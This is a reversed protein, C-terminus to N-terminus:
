PQTPVQPQPAQPQPAQPQPAQPQPAQPQPAQPQPAQPQPAGGPPAGQPAGQQPAGQPSGGPTAGDTGTSEKPANDCEAIEYGDACETKKRYRERFDKVFEEMIKQERESRIAARIAEESQKLSQQTAKSVDDVKFVYYGFQTRVPGQLQGPQASFVAKDLAKDQQGEAVNELRGARKKTADDTSLASAVTKFSEGGALRSKAQNAKAKSKTLVVSIDRQEPKGFRGKNKAYYQRVDADTIRAAKRTVKAQLKQQLLSGRLRYKIAAEDLGSSKLFKRYEREGNKGPFSRKKEEELTNDLEKASVKVNQAEAEQEVWKSTILFQMVEDRIRDYNQECVKKLDADSQKPAGQPQPQKKLSAICKKHEPPDPVAGEGGQAQGKAVSNLWRDFEKKTITDDGVKAVSNSPVDNGCGAIIATPLLLAALVLASKFAFTM